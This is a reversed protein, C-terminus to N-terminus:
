HAGAAAPAAAAACGRCGCCLQPPARVTAGTLTAIDALNAKRNDGFGPAKVACVKVGARLKNVILTALAETPPPPPPLTPTAPIATLSALASEELCLCLVPMCCDVAWAPDPVGAGRWRGGWGGAQCAAWGPM